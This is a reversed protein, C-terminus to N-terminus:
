IAVAVNLHHNFSKFIGLVLVPLALAMGALPLFIWKRLIAMALRLPDCPLGGKGGAAASTELKGTPRPHTAAAIAPTAPPTASSQERKKQVASISFNEPENM